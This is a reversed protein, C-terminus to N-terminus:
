EQAAEYEACYADLYTFLNELDEENESLWAKYDFGEASAMLAADYEEASVTPNASSNREVLLLYDKTSLHAGILVFFKELEINGNEIEKKVFPVSLMGFKRYEQLKEEASADSEYIENLVKKAVGWAKYYNESPAVSNENFNVFYQYNVRLLITSTFLYEYSLITGHAIEYSFYEDQWNSELSTMKDILVPLGRLEIASVKRISRGTRLYDVGSSLPDWEFEVADIFNFYQKYQEESFIEKLVDKPSISMTTKESNASSPIRNYNCSTVMCCITLAIFVVILKKM